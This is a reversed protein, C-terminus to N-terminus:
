EFKPQSRGRGGPGSYAMGFGPEEQWAPLRVSALARQWREILEDEAAYDFPDQLIQETMGGREPQNAVLWHATRALGEAPAVVDRYGLEHKLKGLDFVRHTTFPKAVLPRAPAALHWPMSVIELPHDLAEAVVEVVQRLSLIEEDGANYTKGAAEEPKDVALMLAHALNEAYGFSDLTLGDEPLIVQKRGDLIRRVILWERPALQYPGYVYPYRFHTAHPQLEFVAEETRAIRWGKSDEGECPVLAAAEGTPVPLGAPAFLDPNMYGRYAPGGGVSIFRAVRGQLLKAIARLRGYMAVCLDFHRDVLAIALADVDYPSVHIHEVCSPTEPVEHNGTHLISVEHGREVL